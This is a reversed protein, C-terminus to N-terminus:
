DASILATHFILRQGAPCTYHRTGQDERLSFINGTGDAHKNAASALQRDIEFLIFSAETGDRQGTRGLKHEFTSDVQLPAEFHELARKGRQNSRELSIFQIM